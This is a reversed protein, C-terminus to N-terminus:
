SLQPIRVPGSEKKERGLSLSFFATQGHSVLVSLSISYFSFTNLFLFSLQSKGLILLLEQARGLAFVPILCRGGRTVIDHM